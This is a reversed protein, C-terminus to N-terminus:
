LEMYTFMINSIGAGAGGTAKVSLSLWYGQFNPYSHTPVVDVQLIDIITFPVMMGPAFIEQPIGFATGTVADGRQPYNNGVDFRGTVTTGNGDTNQAMGTIIVLMRGSVMPYFALQTGLMREIVDINAVYDQNTPDHYSYIRPFNIDTSHGLDIGPPGTPGTPGTVALGPGGTPGTPGIVNAFVGTAGQLGTPGRAGTPGIDGTPGTVSAGQAGTPGTPGGAPGTPGGIVVTPQAMILADITSKVPM